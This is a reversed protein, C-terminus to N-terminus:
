PASPLAPPVTLAVETFNIYYYLMEGSGVSALWLLVFLSTVMPHNLFFFRGRRYEANAVFVVIALLIFVLLSLSGHVAATMKLWQPLALHSPHQMRYIMYLMNVSFEFILLGVGLRFPFPKRRLNSYVLYFVCSTVGLESIATLTSFLFPSM